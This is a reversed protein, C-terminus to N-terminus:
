NLDESSSVTSTADIIEIIVTSSSMDINNLDDNELNFNEIEGVQKNFGSFARSFEDKIMQFPSISSLKNEETVMEKDSINPSFSLWILIIVLTLIIASVLSFFKKQSDSKQKIYNLIGM